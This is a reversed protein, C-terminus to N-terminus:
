VCGSLQRRRRSECEAARVVARRVRRVQWAVLLHFSHLHTHLKEFLLDDAGRERESRVGAGREGETEGLRCGAAASRVRRLLVKVMKCWFGPVKVVGVRHLPAPCFWYRAAWLALSHILFPNFRTM